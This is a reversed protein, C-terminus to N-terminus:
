DTGGEVHINRELSVGYAVDLHRRKLSQEADLMVKQHQEELGAVGNLAM